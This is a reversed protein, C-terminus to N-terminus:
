DARRLRLDDVGSRGDDGCLRRDVADDGVDVVRAELRWPVAPDLILDRLYPFNQRGAPADEIKHVQVVNVHGEVQRGLLGTIHGNAGLRADHEVGKGIINKGGGHSVDGVDRLEG